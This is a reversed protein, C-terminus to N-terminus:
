LNERTHFTAIRGMIPQRERRVFATSVAAVGLRDGHRCVALIDRAEDEEDRGNESSDNIIGSTTPDVQTLRRIQSQGNEKEPAEGVAGTGRKESSSSSSEDLESWLLRPEAASRRDRPAGRRVVDMDKQQSRRMAAETIVSELSQSSTRQSLLKQPEHESPPGDVSLFPSMHLSVSPSRRIGTSTFPSPSKNEMPRARRPETDQLDSTDQFDALPAGGMM